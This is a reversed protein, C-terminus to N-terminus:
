YFVIFWLLLWIVGFIIWGFIQFSLLFFKFVYFFLNISYIFDFSYKKKKKNVERKLLKKSWEGSTSIAIFFFLYVVGHIHLIVIKINLFYICWPCLFVGFIYIYVRLIIISNFKHVRAIETHIAYIYVIYISYYMFIGINEQRFIQFIYIYMYAFPTSRVYTPQMHGSGIVRRPGHPNFIFIYICTTAAYM